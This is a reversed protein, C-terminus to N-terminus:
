GPAGDWYNPNGELVLSDNPKWSKFIFAGSGAANTKLWEHGFDGNAEHEMALKKDIVVSTFTLCNLFFSPAYPADLEVQVTMPDVVRVMGDVNEKKLGFQNLIFAPNLDLKM